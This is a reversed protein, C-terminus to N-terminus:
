RPDGRLITGTRAARPSKQCEKKQCHWRVGAPTITLSDIPGGIIPSRPNADYVSQILSVAFLVDRDDKSASGLKKQRTIAERKAWDTKGQVLEAVDDTFSGQGGYTVTDPLNIAKPEPDFSVINGDRTINEMYLAFSGKASLGFFYGNLIPNETRGGFVLNPGYKVIAANLDQSVNQGWRQAVIRLSDNEIEPVAAFASRANGNADMLVIQKSPHPQLEVWVGALGNSSFATRDNLTIIKCQHDGAANRGSSRSDAAVIIKNKSVGFVVITGSKTKVTNLAFSEVTTLLLAFAYFGALLYCKWRILRHRRQVASWDVTSSLEPLSGNSSPPSKWFFAQNLARPFGSSRAAM